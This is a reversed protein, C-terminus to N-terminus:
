AEVGEYKSRLFLRFEELTQNNIIDRNLIRRLTEYLPPASKSNYQGVLYNKKGSKTETSESCIEAAVIAYNAVRFERLSDGEAAFLADMLQREIKSALHQRRRLPLSSTVDVDGERAAQALAALCALKSTALRYWWFSSHRKGSLANEAREIATWADDLHAWCSDRKSGALGELFLYVCLESRRLHIRALQIPLDESPRHLAIAHAENLRRNAESGRGLCGVALGYTSLLRVRLEREQREFDPPLLRCLQLAHYSVKSILKWHDKAMFRSPPATENPRDKRNRHYMLKGRRLIQYSIASLKWILEFLEGPPAHNLDWRRVFRSRWDRLNAHSISAADGSSQRSEEDFDDQFGFLGAIAREIGLLDTADSLSSGEEPTSDKSRTIDRSNGPDHLFLASLLPVPKTLHAFGEAIGSDKLEELERDIVGNIEYHLELLAALKSSDSSKLPEVLNLVSERLPALDDLFASRVDLGPCWYHFCSSGQRIARRMLCTTMWALEIRGQAVQRTIEAPAKAGTLPQYHGALLVAQSCHYFCEVLPTHHGTSHFAKLYWDAIWYHIRPRISWLSRENPHPGASSAAPDDQNPFYPPPDIPGILELIHQIALRANRYKWSFGGPKKLFLGTEELSNAWGMLDIEDWRTDGEKVIGGLGGFVLRYRWEDNDESEVNFKFPCPFVAESIMAASHRSQRFLTLGYLWLARSSRKKRDFDPNGFGLFGNVIEEIMPQFNSGTGNGKWRGLLDVIKDDTSLVAEDRSRVDMPCVSGNRPEEGEPYRHGTLRFPYHRAAGPIRFRSEKEMTALIERLEGMKAVNHGAREPGYPLYLIRFGHSALMRMIRDLNEYAIEDWYKPVLTWGTCGGPGNRGYLFLAWFKPTIKYRALLLSLRCDIAALLKDSIRGEPSPEDLWEVPLFNVSEAQFTGQRQSIAGLIDWLLVLPSRHDELEFWMPRVGSHNLDKFLQRCPGALGSRYDIRLVDTATYSTKTLHLFRKLIQARNSRNAPRANDNSDLKLRHHVPPVLHTFKFHYGGGPLTLNLAQYLEWLLLDARDTVVMHFRLKGARDKEDLYDSFVREIHERDGESHCVWFVKFARDLDLVHKIFQVCRADRASYGLVLLHSKVFCDSRAHHAPGRLYDHFRDRDVPEPLTNISSDARTELLDGHLKILCDQARVTAFAPLNGATSVAITHLLEKQEAFANELLTDFNTTLIVRSRLSRSLRSLLNHIINPQKGRTIHQNFSDIIAADPTALFLIDPNRPDIRTSALFELTNTWHNLARMAKDQVYATSIPSLNPDSPEDPIGRLQRRSVLLDESGSDRLEGSRIIWPVIPRRLDFDPDVRKADMLPTISIISRSGTSANCKHHHSKAFKRFWGVLFKGTKDVDEKAPYPPWGKRHIDWPVGPKCHEDPSGLVRWMTFALYDDFASSMLIGSQASIGSGM